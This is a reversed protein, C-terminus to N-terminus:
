EVAHELARRTVVFVLDRRYAASFNVDDLPDVVEAAAEAAARFAAQEPARGNLVAEAAGIRRPQV